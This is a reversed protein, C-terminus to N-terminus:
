ELFDWHRQFFHRLCSLPLGINLFFVNAAPGQKSASGLRCVLKSLVFVSLHISKSSFCFVFFLDWALNLYRVHYSSRSVSLEHKKSVFDHSLHAKLCNVLQMKNQLKPLM